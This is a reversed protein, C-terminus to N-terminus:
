DRRPGPLLSVLATLSSSAIVYLTPPIDRQMATLISIALTSGLLAVGIFVVIVWDARCPYSQDNRKFPNPTDREETPLDM